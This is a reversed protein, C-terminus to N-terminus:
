PTQEKDLCYHLCILGVSILYHQEHKSPAQKIKNKAQIQGLWVSRDKEAIEPSPDHRVKRSRRPDVAEVVTTHFLVIRYFYVQNRRHHCLRIKFLFILFHRFTVLLYFSDQTSWCFIIQYFKQETLLERQMFHNYM